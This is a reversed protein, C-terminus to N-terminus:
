GAMKGLEMLFKYMDQHDVLAQILQGLTKPKDNEDLIQEFIKKPDYVLVGAERMKQMREADQYSGGAHEFLKAVVAKRLDEEAVSSSLTVILDVLRQLADHHVVMYFERGETQGAPLAASGTSEVVAVYYKTEIVGNNNTVM